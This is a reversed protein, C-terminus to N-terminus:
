REEDDEEGLEFSFLYEIGAEVWRGVFGVDVRAWAATVENRRNRASNTGTFYSQGAPVQGIVLYPGEGGPDNIELVMERGADGPRTVVEGKLETDENDPGYWHFKVVEHKM